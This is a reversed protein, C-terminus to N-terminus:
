RRRSEETSHKRATKGKHQQVCEHLYVHPQKYSTLFAAHINVAWAYMKIVRSYIGRLPTAPSCPFHTNLQTRVWWLAELRIGSKSMLAVAIFIGCPLLLSNGHGQFLCPNRLCM